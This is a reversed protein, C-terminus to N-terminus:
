EWRRYWSLGSREDDEGRGSSVDRVSHDLSLAGEDGGGGDREALASGGLDFPSHSKVVPNLESELRDVLCAVRM